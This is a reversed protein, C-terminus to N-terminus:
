VHTTNKLKDKLTEAPHFQVNSHPPVLAKKNLAPIFATRSSIKKMQFSGLHSVNIKKEESVAERIVMTTQQLLIAAEKHSVNLKEALAHIFEKTNL